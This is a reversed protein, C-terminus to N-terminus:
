LESLKKKAEQVIFLQPNEKSLESFLRQAEERNGLLLSNQAKYFTYMLQSIRTRQSDENQEFFLSPKKFYMVDVIAQLYDAHNNKGVLIPFDNIGDSAKENMFCNIQTIYEKRGDEFSQRAKSTQAKSRRSQEFYDLAREFNGRFPFQGLHM